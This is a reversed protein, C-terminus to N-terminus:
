YTTLFLLNILLRLCFCVHLHSSGTVGVNLVELFKRTTLMSSEFTAVASTANAFTAAIVAVLWGYLATGIIMVAISM